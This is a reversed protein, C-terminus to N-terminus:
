RPANLEDLAYEAGRNLPVPDTDRANDLAIGKAAGVVQAMEPQKEFLTRTLVCALNADLDDRVLLMNPVVITAVDSPLQYTTAPILGEEYAPSIEAMRGLQPTVDIFTVDERASTFLDTIGPTPLGGSWFMADISGDKMGDVTKTLDLRQAAVDTQPNLGASELLRNAIVETGSGPSGTSVRKGRMDAISTIGSDTRAIVQTYNPYIRSLAQIPQEKGDFSGTGEIADSATDALSFAVQYSGAVLQQINQVSAGTEAATAKVTGDTAASVQEAFANGLSFYVGTSNGTAISVRTETGVECTIEGGSDAAPADQRGGCATAATAALMLTAFATVTRKM